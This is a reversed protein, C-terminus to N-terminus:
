ADRAILKGAFLSNCKSNIKTKKASSAKEEWKQKDSERERM